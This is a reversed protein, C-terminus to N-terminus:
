GDQGGIPGEPATVGTELCTRMEGGDEGVSIRYPAEGRLVVVMEQSMAGSRTAKGLARSAAVAARSPSQAARQGPPLEPM